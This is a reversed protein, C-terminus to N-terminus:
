DRVGLSGRETVSQVVCGAESVGADVSQKSQKVIVEKSQKVPRARKNRGRTRDAPTGFFSDLTLAPRNNSMFRM